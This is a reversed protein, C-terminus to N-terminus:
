AAGGKVRAVASSRDSQGPGLKNVSDRWRQAFGAGGSEILSRAKAAAAKVKSLDPAVSKEAENRIADIQNSSLGSLEPPADLIAAVSRLNGESAHKAAYAFREDPELGRLYARLEGAVIAGASTAITPDTMAKGIADEVSAQIESLRSLCADVSKAVSAFRTNAADVLEPEAGSFARLAGKTHRIDGRIHTHGRQADITTSGRGAVAVMAAGLESEASHMASLASRASGVVGSGFPLEAVNGIHHDVIAPDLGPSATVQENVIVVNRETAEM